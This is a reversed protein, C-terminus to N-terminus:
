DELEVYYEDFRTVTCSGYYEWAEGAKMDFTSDHVHIRLETDCQWDSFATYLEDYTM